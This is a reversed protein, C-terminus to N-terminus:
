PRATFILEVMTRNGNAGIAALELHTEVGATLVGDPVRFSSRGPPLNAVLGDTENQELQLRYGVAEPDSNWLVTLGRRPVIANPRPYLLRPAQPLEFSLRARGVAISGDVRDARIEYEGEPHHERLDALSGERLEMILGSVGRQDAGGRALELFGRGDPARVRVNELQEESEAEIKLVAEGGVVSEIILTGVDLPVVPRKDQLWGVTAVTLFSLALISKLM